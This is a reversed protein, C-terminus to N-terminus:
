WMYLFDLLVGFSRCKGTIGGGYAQASHIFLISMVSLVVLCSPTLWDWTNEKKILFDKELSESPKKM